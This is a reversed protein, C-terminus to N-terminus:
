KVYYKVMTPNKNKEKSIKILHINREREHSTNILYSSKLIDWDRMDEIDTEKPQKLDTM